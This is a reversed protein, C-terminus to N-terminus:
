LAERLNSPGHPVQCLAAEEATVGAKGCALHETCVQAFDRFAWLDLSGESCWTLLNMVSDQLLIWLFVSSRASALGM